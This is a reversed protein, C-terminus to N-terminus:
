LGLLLYHLSTGDRKGHIVEKASQRSSVAESDQRTLCDKLSNSFKANFEAKHSGEKVEMQHKRFQPDLQGGCRTITKLM